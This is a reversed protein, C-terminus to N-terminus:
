QFEELEKCKAGSKRNNTPSSSAGGTAGLMIVEEIGALTVSDRAGCQKSPKHVSQKNRMRAFSQANLKPCGHGDRTLPLQSAVLSMKEFIDDKAVDGLNLYMFSVRDCSQPIAGWRVVLRKEVSEEGSMTGFLEVRVVRTFTISDRVM